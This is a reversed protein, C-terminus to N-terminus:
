HIILFYFQGSEDHSTCDSHGFTVRLARMQQEREQLVDFVVSQEFPHSSNFFDEQRFRTDFTHVSHAFNQWEPLIKYLRQSNRSPKNLKQCFMVFIKISQPLKEKHFQGFISYM